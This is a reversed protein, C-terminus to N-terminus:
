GAPGFLDVPGLGAGHAAVLLDHTPAGVLAVSLEDAKAAPDVDAFQDPFLVTGAHYANALAIEVNTWYSNYPLQAHVRGERVATLGEYFRANEAVDERVLGLGGLDVFLHDPDWALLQEKDILVGGAQAIGAAVNRAGIVDFPLYAGQTSEIGHLGKYGLAGVYATPRAADDVAATRRALDELTGRVLAAAETAHAPTGVVDGVLRLSDFFPEEVTGLAGYSLVVVPIGTAAQLEDAGEADTLQAAFIVDPDATLLREADPASDAGGAGIVPLELLTPNALTYPRVLPPTAESGEIGVVESAAGAYVVLRLSGSGIAVVRDVEEPVRVERGLLDTVVTTAPGVATDARSATGGCGAVLAAVIAAVVALGTQVRRVPRVGM